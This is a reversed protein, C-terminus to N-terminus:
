PQATSRRLPLNNVPLSGNGPHPFIRQFLFIGFASGGNKLLGASIAVALVGVAPRFSRIKDSRQQNAMVLTSIQDPRDDLFTPRVAAHRGYAKRSILSRVYDRIQM